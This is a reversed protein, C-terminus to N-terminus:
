SSERNKLRYRKQEGAGSEELLGQEALGRLVKRLIEVDVKVQERTIWWEAIGQLTDSAQPHESLYGLM